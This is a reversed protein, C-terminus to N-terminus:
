GHPTSTCSLQEQSRQDPLLSMSKPNKHVTSYEVYQPWKTGTSWGHPTSTCQCPIKGRHGKVKSCRGQGQSEQPCKQTWPISALTALIHMHVLVVWTCPFLTKTRYGKVKSSGDELKPVSRNLCFSSHDNWPEVMSFTRLTANVGHEM